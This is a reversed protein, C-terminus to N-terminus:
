LTLSTDDAYQAIVQQHARGPLNIGKVMRASVEAKIMANMVEAVVLFFYAVLPCEQRV